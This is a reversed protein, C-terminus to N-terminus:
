LVLYLLYAFFSALLAGGKLRTITGNGGFGYSMAFLAITLVFMVSFDRSLAEAPVKFPAILGPLGMVGLLNFMNSGVVNGVAIDDEKKLICMISAALEPLSTGIAIITLGIILDSIGLWHAIEVAGFVVLRSGLLLLALGLLLWLLTKWMPMHSPIEDAFEEQMPDTIRSRMAIRTIWYLMVFVGSLLIVGDWFSLYGDILLMLSLMMFIFLLPFERRLTNSHVSIPAVLATAGIVLGINAINSGIANGISIGPNGNWAALGSVLMEPASTGFGVVTLGIILPPVGLNRAMASAGLVFRDAGWILIAFGTIVAIFNLLM